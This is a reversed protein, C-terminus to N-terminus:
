DRRKAQTQFSAYLDDLRSAVFEAFEPETHKDFVLNTTNAGRALTASARGASSTWIPAAIPQKPEPGTAAALVRLFRADSLASKFDDQALLKEVARKAKTEALADALALWRRRGAKPAPGIAEIVAEPVSRAVTILKSLEGKDTALVACITARDFGKEELRFAFLAREVYSLDKREANEVGQALILAPDSMERVIAKVKRGLEACARWRRHGFAIQFRGPTTPHPRVLIPVEQGTDAISQKFREFDEVSESLRDRVFSPDILGPELEVVTAGTALAEKLARSEHELRDLALGMSRVPGALVREAPKEAASPPVANAMALKESSVTAAYLDSITSRRSM